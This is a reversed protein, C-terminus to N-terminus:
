WEGTYALRLTAMREAAEVGVFQQGCWRVSALILPRNPIRVIIQQGVALPVDIKLRLGTQSIDCVTAFCFNSGLAIRGTLAVCYRGPRPAHSLLPEPEIGDPAGMIDLAGNSHAGFKRGRTWRITGEHFRDDDISFIISGSAKLPVATEGAFGANSANLIRMEAYSAIPLVEAKLSVNRRPANRRESSGSSVTRKEAEFFSRLRNVVM